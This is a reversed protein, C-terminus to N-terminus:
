YLNLLIGTTPILDLVGQYCITTDDQPKLDRHLWNRSSGKCDPPYYCAGDMSFVLQENPYIAQFIPRTLARARYLFSTQGIGYHQYIGHTRPLDFGFSTRWQDFEFELQSAIDQQIPIQIYGDRQLQEVIHM